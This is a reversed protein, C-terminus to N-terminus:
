SPKYSAPKFQLWFKTIPGVEKGAHDYRDKRSIAAKVIQGGIWRMPEPPFSRSLPSVLPSRTWVDDKDQVLSALIHSGVRSPVVGAGSYGYGFVIDRCTPLRGFIPLGNMTRDIPGCWAGEIEVDRLAPHYAGIVDRLESETRFPQRSCRDLRDGYPLWGGSKTWFMRDDATPRCAEIFVRSDTFGSVGRLGLEDLKDPIPKTMAADTFMVMASSRLEPISLSWGYLGLVVKRATVTGQPTTVTPPSTRGLKTMETKEFIRVGKALAVRRLGRVLHGPHILVSSDDILGGVLADSGTANRVADKDLYRYGHVQFGEMLRLMEDWHGSQKECTAAWITNTESIQSDIGHEASVSRIDDIAKLAANGINMASETDSVQELLPLQLWMPLAHGANAGSGGSGCIDREIIAVDLSTDRSKLELATWLGTFGGGVIAVDVKLDGDLPTIGPGGDAKLAQKLWVSQM